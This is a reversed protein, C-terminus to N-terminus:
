LQQLKVNLQPDQIIENLLQSLQINLQESVKKINATFAGEKTLHATFIKRFLQKKTNLEVKIVIKSDINHTLTKQEVKALLKILQINIKDTSNTNFRLGRKSWQQQLTNEIILRSSKSENILTAAGEGKTVEILYQAIRHDQSNIEWITKSTLPVAAQNSSLEPQLQMSIPSTSCAVLLLTSIILITLRFNKLLLYVM